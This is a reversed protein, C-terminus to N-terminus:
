VIKWDRANKMNFVIARKGQIGSENDRHLAKGEGVVRNEILTAVASKDAASQIDPENPLTDPTDDDGADAGFLAALRGRPVGGVGAVLHIVDRVGGQGKRHGIAM